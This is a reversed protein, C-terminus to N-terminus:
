ACAIRQELFYFFIFPVYLICHTGCYVFCRWLNNTQIFHQWYFKKRVLFVPLHRYGAIALCGILFAIHTVPMLKRLGGMDKMENSHVMHIVAGAGLFLLSKFIAHTFLHFMSAMYGLGNEGGTKFYGICVDYLRDAVHNFLGISKQYRNTYMCYNCCAFCLLRRCLNCDFCEPAM